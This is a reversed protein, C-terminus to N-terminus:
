VERRAQLYKLIGLFDYDYPDHRINLINIYSIKGGSDKFYLRPQLEFKTYRDLINDPTRFLSNVRLIEGEKYNIEKIKEYSTNNIKVDYLGEAEEFLPSELELLSIEEKVTRTSSSTGDSSSGGSKFEFYRDTIERSYLIIRGLDGEMTDGNNFHIKGKNIELRDLDRPIMDRNIQLHVTSVKYPGYTEFGDYLVNGFIENDSSDDSLFEIYSIKRNDYANSIYSIRFELSQYYEESRTIGEEILSKLFIPEELKIAFAIIFSITLLLVVLILGFKLIKRNIEM